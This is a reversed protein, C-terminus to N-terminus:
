TAGSESVRPLTKAHHPWTPHLPTPAPSPQTPRTTSLQLPLPSIVQTPLNLLLLLLQSSTSPEDLCLADAPSDGTPPPPIPLPPALTDYGGWRWRGVGVRGGVLRAELRDRVYLSHIHTYM